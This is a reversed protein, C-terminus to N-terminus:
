AGPGYSKAARAKRAEVAEDLAQTLLSQQGLLAAYDRASRGSNDSRDPNAGAALLMRVMAIDRRHVAAILPTEGTSNGQDVAAGKGILIEVGEAWALSSALQLPTVGANDASNPNAGKNLLFRLWSPDRRQVVIHLANEGSTIDRANVVTTGPRDLAATAKNGDRDKVAKLFEHGESVRQAQAPAAFALTFAAAAVVSVAISKIRHM